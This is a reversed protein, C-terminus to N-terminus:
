RRKRRRASTFARGHTSIGSLTEGLRARMAAVFDEALADLWFKVTDYGKIWGTRKHGRSQFRGPNSPALSGYVYKAGPEDNRIVATITDGQVMANFRWGQPIRNTRRHPIGGGFGNTAHFARQQAESDWDGSEWYRRNPITGLEDLAARQIPPFVIGFEEAAITNYNDLYDELADLRRTRLDSTFRIM